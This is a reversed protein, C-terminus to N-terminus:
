KLYNSFTQSKALPYPTNEFNELAYFISDLESSHLLLVKLRDM